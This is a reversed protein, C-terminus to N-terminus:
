PPLSLAIKAHGYWGGIFETCVILLGVKDISESSVRTGIGLSQDQVFQRELSERRGHDRVASFHKAKRGLGKYGLL